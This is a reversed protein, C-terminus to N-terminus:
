IIGTTPMHMDAMNRDFLASAGPETRGVLINMPEYGHCPIKCPDGAKRPGADIVSIHAIDLGRPVWM